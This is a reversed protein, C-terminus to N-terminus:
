QPNFGLSLLSSYLWAERAQLVLPPSLAVLAGAALAPWPGSALRALKYVAPVLLTGFVLSPLRAAQDTVGLLGTLAAELYASLLGRTYLFGDPLLPVGHELIGRAALALRAEDRGMTGQVSPLWAVRVWGAAVTLAALAVPLAWDPARPDGRSSAPSTTPALLAHTM